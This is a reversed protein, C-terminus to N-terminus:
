YGGTTQKGKVGRYNIQAASYSPKDTSEGVRGVSGTDADINTAGALLADVAGVVEWAAFKDTAKWNSKVYGTRNTFLRPTEYRGTTVKRNDDQNNDKNTSTVNENQKNNTKLSQQLTDASSSGELKSQAEYEKGGSADIATGAADYKNLPPKYTADTPEGTGTAVGKAEAKGRTADYTAKADVKDNYKGYQEKVDLTVQARAQSGEATNLADLYANTGNGLATNNQMVEMSNALGNDGNANAEKMATINAEKAGAVKIKGDTGVVGTNNKAANNAAEMAALNATIGLNAAEEKKTETTNMKKIADIGTPSQLLSTEHEAASGLAFLLSLKMKPTL